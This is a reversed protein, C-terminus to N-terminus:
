SSIGIFAVLIIVRGQGDGRPRWTYQGSEFGDALEKATVGDVACPLTECLLEMCRNDTVSTECRCTNCNKKM